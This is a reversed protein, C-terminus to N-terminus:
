QEEKTGTTTHQKNIPQAILQYPLNSDALYLVKNLLIRVM